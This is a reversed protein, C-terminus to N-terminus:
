YPGPGFVRVHKVQMGNWQDALPKTYVAGPYMSKSKLNAQYVTGNVVVVDHHTGLGTNATCLAMHYVRDNQLKETLEDLSKFGQKGSRNLLEPLGFRTGIQIGTGGVDQSPNYPSAHACGSSWLSLLVNVYSCCNLGRPEDVFADFEAPTSKPKTFILMNPRNRFGWVVRSGGGWQKWGYPIEQTKAADTFTNIASLSRLQSAINMVVGADTALRGLRDEPDTPDIYNKPIWAKSKQYAIWAKATASGNNGWVGDLNSKPNHGTRALLQQIRKVDMGTNTGGEGVRKGIISFTSM